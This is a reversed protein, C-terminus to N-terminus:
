SLLLVFFAIGGVTVAVRELWGNTIARQSAMVSRVIHEPEQNLLGRRYMRWTVVACQLFWAGNFAWRLVPTRNAPSLLLVISLGLLGAQLIPGTVQSIRSTNDNM